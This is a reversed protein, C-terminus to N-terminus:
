HCVSFVLSHARTFELTHFSHYHVPLKYKRGRLPWYIEESICVGEITVRVVLCYEYRCSIKGACQRVVFSGCLRMQLM